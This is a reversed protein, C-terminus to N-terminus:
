FLIPILTDLEPDSGKANIELELALRMSKMFSAEWSIEWENVQPLDGTYTTVHFGFKGIPSVSEQHLAALRATFQHPDPMDDMMERFQCLFFHTDPITTYTGWALPEPVFDPLVAHITKISEFEGRMMNKGIKM